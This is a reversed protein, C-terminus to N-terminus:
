SQINRLLYLLIGTFYVLILPLVALQLLKTRCSIWGWSLSTVLGCFIVYLLAGGILWDCVYELIPIVAVLDATFKSVSLENYTLRYTLSLLRHLLYLLAVFLLYSHKLIKIVSGYRHNALYGIDLSFLLHYLIALLLCDLLVTNSVQSRLELSYRIANRNHLTLIYLPNELFLATFSLILLQRHEPLRAKVMKKRSCSCALVAALLVLLWVLYHGYIKFYSFHQSFTIAQSLTHIVYLQVSRLM